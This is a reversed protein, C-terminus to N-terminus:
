KLISEWKMSNKKLEPHSVLLHWVISQFSETIATLNNKNLIPITLCFNTNKKTYGGNPGTIGIITSKKQKAIKISELLNTSIKKKIDGGGVSFIFIIDNKSLKSTLLWEKYSSSWGDDNIRATLESVNDSPTYCEINAIKRFDNVAHTANGAGGGIGLFFIRGNNRKVKKLKSIIQSIMDQNLLSCSKQIEKLYTKIFNNM